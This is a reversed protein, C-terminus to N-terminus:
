DKIKSKISKLWRTLEAAEKSTNKYDFNGQSQLTIIEYNDKNEDFQYAVYTAQGM